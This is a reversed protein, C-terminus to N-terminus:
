SEKSPTGRRAYLLTVVLVTVLGAALGTVVASHTRAYLEGLGAVVTNFVAVVLLADDPLRRARRGDGGSEIVDMGTFYRPPATTHLATCAV